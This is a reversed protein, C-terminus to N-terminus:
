TCLIKTRIPIHPRLDCSRIAFVVVHVYIYGWTGVNVFIQGFSYEISKPDSKGIIRNLIHIFAEIFILLKISSKFRKGYLHSLTLEGNNNNKKQQHRIQRWRNLEVLMYMERAHKPRIVKCQIFHTNSDPKSYKNYLNICFELMYSTSDFQLQYIVFMTQVHDNLSSIHVMLSFYISYNPM